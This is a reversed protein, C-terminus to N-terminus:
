TAESAWKVTQCFYLLIFNIRMYFALVLPGSRKLGRLGTKLTRLESLNLFHVFADFIFQLCILCLNFALHNISCGAKMQPHM